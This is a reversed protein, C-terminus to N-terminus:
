LPFCYDLLVTFQEFSIRYMAYTIVYCPLLTLLKAGHLSLQARYSLRIRVRRTNLRDRIRDESGALYIKM